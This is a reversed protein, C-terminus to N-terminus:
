NRSNLAHTMTDKDVYELETGTSLGRGLTSLKINQEKMIPRLREELYTATDEGETTASLALIVEQISNDKNGLHQLLSRVRIKKEPEKDLPSTTGGLVFYKGRYAGTREVNELDVDREVIMLEGGDRADNACISCQKSSDVAPFLRRCSECTEVESRAKTLAEAFRGVWQRDRRVFWFALRRAQRPGIGPLEQLLETLQELRDNM